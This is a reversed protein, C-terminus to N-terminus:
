KASKIDVGLTAAMWLTGTRKNIVRYGQMSDSSVEGFVGDKLFAEREALSDFDIWLVKYTSLCGFNSVIPNTVSAGPALDVDVAHIQGRFVQEGNDMQMEPLYTIFASYKRIPADTNNTLKYNYSYGNDLLYTSEMINFSLPAKVKIGLLKALGSYNHQYTITEYDGKYTFTM